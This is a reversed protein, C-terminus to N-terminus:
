QRATIIQLFEDASVINLPPFSNLKVLNFHKDNTVLYDAGGAIALDCFKNDTDDHEILNWYFYIDHLEANEASLMSLIINEAVLVNAKQQIIEFYELLVDNSLLLTYQFNIFAKFIIRYPSIKGLSALLVNTDIVVKM